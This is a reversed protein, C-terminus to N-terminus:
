ITIGGAQELFSETVKKYQLKVAVDLHFVRARGGLATIGAATTTLEQMNIDAM